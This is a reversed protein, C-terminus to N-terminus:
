FMISNLIGEGRSSENKPYERSLLLNARMFCFIHRKVKQQTRAVIKKGIDPKDTKACSIRIIGTGPEGSCVGMSPCGEDCTDSLSCFGASVSCCFSGAGTRRVLGEVSVTDLNSCNMEPSDTEDTEVLM